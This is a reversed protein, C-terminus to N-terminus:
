FRTGLRVEITRPPAFSQLDYFGRYYVRNSQYLKDTLNRGILSVYTKGGALNYRLNANVLTVPGEREKTTDIFAPFIVTSQHNVEARMTLMGGGLAMRYEAGATASVKPAMPMPSGSMDVKTYPSIYNKLASDVYAANLDLTLDRSPRVVLTFEAGQIAAKSVNSVATQNTVTNLTRLQLDSYDYYFAAADLEIRGGAASMKTGIEYAKIKEPQYSAV